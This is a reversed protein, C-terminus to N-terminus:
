SKVISEKEQKWCENSQGAPGRETTGDSWVEENIKNGVAPFPTNGGGGVETMCSMRGGGEM